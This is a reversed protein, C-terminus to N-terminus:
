EATLSATMRQLRGRLSGDLVRDGIKVVVGGIIDTDIHQELVVESDLWAALVQRLRAAQERDLPLAATVRVRVIGRAQDAVEQYVEGAVRLVEGRKHEVLTTLLEHLIPLLGEGLLDTVAQLKREPAMAPHQLLRM